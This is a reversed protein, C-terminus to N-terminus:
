LLECLKWYTYTEPGVNKCESVLHCVSEGKEDCIRRLQSAVTRDIHHKM